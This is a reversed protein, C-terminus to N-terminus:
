TKGPDVHSRIADIVRRQSTGTLGPYIPLCLIDNALREAQDLTGSRRITAFAPQLHLPRPYHVATEIGAERLAAAAGDRDKLAIAYQSRAPAIGAPVETLTLGKHRLPELGEDYIAGVRRRAALANQFGDLRVLLAAATISSIRGNLGLRIHKYRDSQGHNCIERIREALTASNTFIAGGDGVGGLTKTPFFSTCGVDCLGGSMSGNQVAGLSQAADEIVTIGSGSILGTIANFDPPTGYLSVAVIARTKGTVARQLGNLSILGSPYDVDVLVPRAGALIVCELPAAFTFAPVIVEDDPQLDLALLSMLLATTGSSCAITYKVGVLVSLRVELESIEPGGIFRGHELIRGIRDLVERRLPRWESKLDVFPVTPIL